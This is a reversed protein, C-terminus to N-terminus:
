ETLRWKDDIFKVDKVENPDPGFVKLLIMLLGVSIASAVVLKVLFPIMVKAGESPRKDLGQLAKNGMVLFITM